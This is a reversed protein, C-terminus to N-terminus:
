RHLEYALIRALESFKAKLHSEDINYSSEDYQPYLSYLANSSFITGSPERTKFASIEGSYIEFHVIFLPHLALFGPGELKLAHAKHKGHSVQSFSYNRLGLLNRGFVANGLQLLLSKGLARATERKHKLIKEHQAARLRDPTNRARELSANNKGKKVEDDLWNM